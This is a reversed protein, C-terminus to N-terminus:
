IIGFVGYILRDKLKVFGLEDDSEAIICSDNLSIKTTDSNKFYLVPVFQTANSCSVISTKLGTEQIFGVPAFIKKGELAKGLEFASYAISESYNGSFNSTIQLMPTNKILSIIEPSVQIYDIDSPFFNTILEVEDVKASYGNQLQQFNTGNYYITNGGLANGSFNMVFGLTSAVMIFVIFCAMIIKSTREKM